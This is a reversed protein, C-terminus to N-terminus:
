WEKGTLQPINETMWMHGEKYLGNRAMYDHYADGYNAYEEFITEKGDKIGIYYM